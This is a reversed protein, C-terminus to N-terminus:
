GGREHEPYMAPLMAVPGQYPNICILSHSGYSFSLTSVLTMAFCRRIKKYWQQTKYLEDHDIIHYNIISKFRSGHLLIDRMM